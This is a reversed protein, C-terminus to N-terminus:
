HDLQFDMREGGDAHALLNRVRQRDPRPLLQLARERRAQQLNHERETLREMGPNFRNQLDAAFQLAGADDDGADLFGIIANRRRDDHFRRNM